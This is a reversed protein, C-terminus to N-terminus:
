QKGPEGPDPEPGTLADRCAADPKHRPDCTIAVPLRCSIMVVPCVQIARAGPKRRSRGAATIASKGRLSNPLTRLFSSDAITRGAMGRHDKTVQRKRSLIKPRSNIIFFVMNLGRGERVGGGETALNVLDERFIFEDTEFAQQDHSGIGSVQNGSGFSEPFDPDGAAALAFASSRPDDVIPLDRGLFDLEAADVFLGALGVEGFGFNM